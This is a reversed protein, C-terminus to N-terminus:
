HKFYDCFKNIIEEITLFDAVVQAHLFIPTGGENFSHAFLPCAQGLKSQKDLIEIQKDLIEEIEDHQLIAESSNFDRLQKEMLMYKEEDEKNLTSPPVYLPIRHALADRYNKSYETYWTQMVESKLYDNLEPKLHIQTKENFLGVGYKTIKGKKPSGLLDNEYVFVWALNDLIGSINILFAHLNIDLDTLDDRTLLDNKEIPFIKFINHLCRTLINLRRGVGQMLYECAKKSRLISHLHSLKLVLRAYVQDIDAYKEKIKKINEEDYVM